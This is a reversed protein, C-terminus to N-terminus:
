ILIEVKKTVLTEKLLLDREEKESIVVISFLVLVSAKVPGTKRVSHIIGFAQELEMCVPCDKGCCDHKLNLAIFLESFFIMMIFILAFTAAKLRVSKRYFCKRSLNM